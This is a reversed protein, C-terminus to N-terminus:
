KCTATIKWKLGGPHDESDFVVVPAEPNTQDIIVVQTIKKSANSHKRPDAPDETYTRGDYEVEVSGGKIIIEGGNGPDAM